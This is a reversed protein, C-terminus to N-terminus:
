NVTMNVGVALLFSPYFVFWNQYFERFGHRANWSACYTAVVLNLTRTGGKTLTDVYPKNWALDASIDDENKFALPMLNASM